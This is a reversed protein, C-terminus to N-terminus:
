YVSFYYIYASNNADNIGTKMYEGASNQIYNLVFYVFVCACRQENFGRYAGDCVLIVQFTNTNNPDNVLDGVGVWSAVIGFTAKFDPDPVRSSATALDEDRLNRVFAGFTSTSNDSQRRKRTANATSENTFKNNILAGAFTLGNTNNFDAPQTPLDDTSDCPSTLFGNNCACYDTVKQGVITAQSPLKQQPSCAGDIHPVEVDGADEGVSLGIDEISDIGATSTIIATITSYSTVNTDPSSTVGGVLSENRDGTASGGITTGDLDVPTSSNSLSGPDVTPTPINVLQGTNATVASTPVLNAVPSSNSLSGPDVTPTPINVRQRTTASLAPTPVLNAVPSSNSLSGPDVTPTPINVRQRTTASLAPTPVLNAVPSANSLSGPDVTPTPINVRQRTTAPLAPTPVLNAVPSSNSLSGPDVTPTPINVRQRTTAPLAPTPVLNAVPSSNSLSGPDVTPTPINVRERTTASLAPTPVLNVAPSSNSLSGPDVTGTNIAVTTTSTPAPTQVLNVAPSSNSLSGPDVTGTNIAVTTTSTPAPTQVLNVAPSSNSLSGPDVTGTNIAVTTTSTPAPTQVLNVAPSSNSLSGPDVTGTNIAVTTTSTPAPTQVLNVAPSSNSLSGPDVTGPNITGSTTSTLVTTPALNVAPSSSSLYGPDVTEINNLGLTTAELFSTSDLVPSVSTRNLDSSPTTSSANSPCINEAELIPDSGGQDLVYFHQGSSNTNTTGNYLDTVQATGSGPLEFNCGSPINIGARAFENTQPFNLSPDFDFKIYCITANGGSTFNCGLFISTSHGSSSTDASWRVFFAWDVANANLYNQAVSSNIYGFSTEYTGYSSTNILMAGAMVGSSSSDFDAASTLVEGAGSAFSVYGGHCLFFSNIEQKGIKFTQTLTISTNQCSTTNDVYDIQGFFDAAAVTVFGLGLLVQLLNKAAM